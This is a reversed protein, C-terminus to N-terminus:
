ELRLAFKTLTLADFPSFGLPTNHKVPNCIIPFITLNNPTAESNDLPKWTEGTKYARM